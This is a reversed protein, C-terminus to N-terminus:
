FLKSFRKVYNFLSQRLINQVVFAVTILKIVTRDNHSWHLLRM